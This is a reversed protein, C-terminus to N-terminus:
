ETALLAMEVLRASYGWENDYWALLKILDGDVVRTMSLDVIASHPNGVIDSSVLPAYTTELINKFRKTKAAAEFAKNVEDVSTKKEVVLTVDILSGTIIPVRVAIGDFKDKLDPIVKTTAIAAGTTTPVTNFAGSRARRLDPKKKSPAGDVINQNITVAHITTLAAKLVKFKEHIVSVVPATCNTTCSANSIVNQGLYQEENVGKLFTQIDGTGKAPASIVVKKAGADVHAKAAGDKVFRGTCELVVDVDLDKWPLKAPEPQSTILIEKDKVVLYTEPFEKTFFEKKGKADELRVKKGEQKLYIDEEYIGYASDYKLMHLLVRPNTLDNIAVVDAGKDLAIKFSARGIRGFGNIGIRVSM